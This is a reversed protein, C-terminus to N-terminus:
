IDRCREITKPNFSVASFRLVGMDIWYADIIKGYTWLFKDIKKNSLKDLGFECKFSNYNAIYLSYDGWKSRPSIKGEYEYEDLLTAVISDVIPYKKEDLFSFVKTAFSYTYDGTTEKCIKVFQPLTLKEEKICRKLDNKDHIDKDALKLVLQSIGTVRTHYTDNIKKLFSEMDGTNRIDNDGNEFDSFESIYNKVDILDGKEFLQITTKSPNSTWFENFTEVVEISPTILKWEKDTKNMLGIGREYNM